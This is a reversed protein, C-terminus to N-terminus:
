KEELAKTVIEEIGSLLHRAWGAYMAGIEIGNAKLVEAALKIKADSIPIFIDEPYADCWQKIRILADALDDARDEANM